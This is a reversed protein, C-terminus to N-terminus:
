APRELEAITSYGIGTKAALDKRELGQAERERKVRDGITEMGYDDCFATVPHQQCADVSDQLTRPMSQFACMLERSENPQVTSVKAARM